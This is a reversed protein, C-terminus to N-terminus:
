NLNTNVMRLRNYDILIKSFRGNECTKETIIHLKFIKNEKKEIKGLRACRNSESNVISRVPWIACTCKAVGFDSSLGLDNPRKDPRRVVSLACVYM